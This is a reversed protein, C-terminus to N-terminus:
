YWLPSDCDICTRAGLRNVKGCDACPPAEGTLPTACRCCFPERAPNAHRCKKCTTLRTFQRRELDAKFDACSFYRDHFNASLNVRLLEYFWRQDAPFPCAPSSLADALDLGTATGSPVHGTALQYLTASLCFLDSRPLAHGATQEPASYGDTCVRTTSPRAGSTYAERALGFDIVKITKADPLLIIQDPKLDRHVWPPEHGHLAQLVDCITKGWEVVLDFPFPKGDTARMVDILDQGPIYEMFLRAVHNNEYYGYLRPVVPAEKLLDLVKAERRFFGLRVERERADECHMDKIVLSGNTRLDTGLYVFSFGGKALLKELRIRKNFVTGAPYPIPARCKKCYRDV